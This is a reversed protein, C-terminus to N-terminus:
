TSRSGTRALFDRLLSFARDPQQRFVGHGVDALTEIQVPTNVLWTALEVVAAVPTVPDDVGALILTPCTIEPAYAIASQPGCGGHRFHTVVEDNILVRRRRTALGGDNASGYLPLGYQEWEAGAEESMDGGLYRRAAERARPGGRREFVDLSQELTMPGGFTSDLVLGAVLQPHRAACGMAVMGGSSVGVLVPDVIGLADCVGAVDDAWRDWTWDAPQGRDSRGSGRQDLYVVQAVDRLSAFDPKFMSHDAGPGGHLLVVTPRPVMADGDAALGCGEVDFYLKVDDLAIRM